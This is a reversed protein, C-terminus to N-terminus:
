TLIWVGDAQLIETLACQGARPRKALYPLTLLRERLLFVCKARRVAGRQEEESGASWLSEKDVIVRVTREEALLERRASGQMQSRTSWGIPRVGVLGRALWHYVFFKAPPQAGRSGRSSCERWGGCRGVWGRGCDEVWWRECGAGGRGADAWGAGGAWGAVGGM